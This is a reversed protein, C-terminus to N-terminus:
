LAQRFTLNYRVADTLPHFGDRMTDIGHYNLRSPGGWVVIDGHVLRVRRVPDKRSLGGWLFTATVGLSVSVIPQAQDREDRDQHLTLRSGPQYRNVLCVDSRFASYGAAEAAQTALAMFTAPMPPWPRGTQPDIQGYRYGSRDSVWGAAGCNTMAVSMQFGGPTVLRRFPSTAAVDHIATLLAEAFPTAFGTLVMAGPGLALDARPQDDFLDAAMTDQRM